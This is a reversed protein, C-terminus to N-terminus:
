YGPNDEPSTTKMEALKSAADDVYDANWCISLSFIRGSCYVRYTCYCSSLLKNRLARRAFFYSLFKFM